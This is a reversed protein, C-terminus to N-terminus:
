QTVLLERDPALDHKTKSTLSRKGRIKKAVRLFPAFLPQFPLTAIGFVINAGASVIAVRRDNNSSTRARNLRVAGSTINPALMEGFATLGVVTNRAIKSLKTEGTINYSFQGEENNSNIARVRFWYKTNPELKEAVASLQDTTSATEWSGHITRKQLEYREAAQLNFAPKCWQLEIKSETRGKVKLQQPFGPILQQPNLLVPKSPESIGADNRMKVRFYQKKDYKVRIEAQISPGNSPNIEVERSIWRITPLTYSEIILAKVPSGHEDEQSLRKVTLTGQSESTLTIRPQSPQSPPSAPMQVVVAKSWPGPGSENIKRVKVTCLMGPQVKEKGLRIGSGQTVPWSVNQGKEEGYQVEFKTVIDTGYSDEWKVVLFSEQLESDVEARATVVVASHPRPTTSALQYVGAHPDIIDQQVRAVQRCSQRREEHMLNCMTVSIALTLNNTAANLEDYLAKLQMRCSKSQLYHRVEALKRKDLGSMYTECKDMHLKLPRIANQIKTDQLQGHLTELMQKLFDAREVIQHCLEDNNKATDVLDIIAVVKQLCGCVIKFATDVM